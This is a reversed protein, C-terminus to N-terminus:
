GKLKFSVTQGIWVGIPKKNQQAPTFKCQAIYNVAASDLIPYGSGQVVVIRKIDANADLFAKIFVTGEYEFTRAAEPYELRPKFLFKPEVEHPIFADIPPLSEVVITGTEGTGTGTLPSQGSIQSQELSTEQQALADPAPKPVGVTPAASRGTVTQPAGGEQGMISPPPGLQAYTVSIVKKGMNKGLEKLRREYQWQQYKVYGFVAFIVFFVFANTLYYARRLYRASFKLLPSKGGIAPFCLQNSTNEM